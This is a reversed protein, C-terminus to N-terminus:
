FPNKYITKFPNTKGVPNLNPVNGGVPNSLPNISPLVPGVDVQHNAAPNGSPPAPKIKKYFIFYVAIVAALILIIVIAVLQLKKNAM